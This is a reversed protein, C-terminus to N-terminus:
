VPVFSRLRDLNISPLLIKRPLFRVYTPLSGQKENGSLSVTKVSKKSYYQHISIHFAQCKNKHILNTTINIVNEYSVTTKM